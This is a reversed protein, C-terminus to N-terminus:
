SPIKAWTRFPFKNNYTTSLCMTNLYIDEPNYRWTTQCFNVSTETIDAADIMLAIFHQYVEILSFPAIVWFVAIKM